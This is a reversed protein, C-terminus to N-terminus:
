TLLVHDFHSLIGAFKSLMNGDVLILRVYKGSVGPARIDPGHYPCPQRRPYRVNRPVYVHKPIPSAHWHNWANGAHASSRVSRPLSPRPFLPVSSRCPSHTNPNSDPFTHHSPSCEPQQSRVLSHMHLIPFLTIQKAFTHVYMYVFVEICRSM